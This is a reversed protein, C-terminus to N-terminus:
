KILIMRKTGSFEGATLVYFYAGSALDSGNFDISYYGPSRIEDILNSIERGSIDYIKLIVKSENPLEFNIRTVPNFPNPYNQKLSFKDPIGIAVENQLSYYKFSGNYNIQKLRYYYTGCSLNKDSFIYSSLNNSNGMGTVFGVKM